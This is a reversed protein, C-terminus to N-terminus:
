SRVYLVREVRKVDDGLRAEVEPADILQALDLDLRAIGITLDPQEFEAPCCVFNMGIERPKSDTFLLLRLIDDFGELVRALVPRGPDSHHRQPGQSIRGPRRGTFHVPPRDIFGIARRARRQVRNAGRADVTRDLTWRY